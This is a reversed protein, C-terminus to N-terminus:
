LNVTREEIAIAQMCKFHGKPCKHYGLKSCPRCSLGQIELIVSDPHAKYPGMGFEPITNGWLSVIKKGYAAAIHMLGTDSTIVRDAQEIVSASQNLSLQGCANVVGPNMGVLEEGIKQDAKGGLLIVPNASKRVIENLKNLPIQKTYYSGGVVLVSYGGKVGLTEPVNVKDAEGIFYDLGKGDNMVGLPMVTELYRDVIHVPPLLNKRKLVVALWKRINLKNFAYAPKGLVRKLKWSRINHHLDIVGTFDEAQLVPVVENVNTEFTHLCTVYPNHKLVDSFAKKTVVHIEAYPKAAKLCRIVPTILVIDGISSFRIILYKELTGAFTCNNKRAPLVPNKIVKEAM